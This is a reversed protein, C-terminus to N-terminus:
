RIDREISSGINYRLGFAYSIVGAAAGKLLFDQRTTSGTVQAFASVYPLETQLGFIAV